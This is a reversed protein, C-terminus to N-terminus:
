LIGATGRLFPMGMGMVADALMGEAASPRLPTAPTGLRNPWLPRWLGKTDRPIRPFFDFRIKVTFGVLNRYTKVSCRKKRNAM